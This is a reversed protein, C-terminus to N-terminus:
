KDLCTVKMLPAAKKGWSESDYLFGDPTLTIAEQQALRKSLIVSYTKGAEWGAKPPLGKALDFGFEFVAGYTLLVARKGDQSIDFGTPIWAWFTQDPALRPLDIEGVLDMVQVGDTARLQAASLRYVKAPGPNRAQGDIPKTVLFLDGDPHMAISEANHPGDPYRARVTRLPTETEGFEAKEEVVVFSIEGRTGPNDGVDALYLCSAKGCPGLAMDEIDRPKAGELNVAKLGGGTLDSVFFRLSDGSDNHHYLRGPFRTSAELGSAENVLAPDLTGVESAASWSACLHSPAALALGPLAALVAALLAPRRRM